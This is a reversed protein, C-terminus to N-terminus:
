LVRCICVRYQGITQLDHHLPTDWTNHELEVHYTM